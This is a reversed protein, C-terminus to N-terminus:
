NFTLLELVRDSMPVVRMKGTKTLFGDSNSVLILKRKLDVSGWELNLVEGLRMGTLVTFVFMRRFLADARSCLRWFEEESLFKPQREPIRMPSCKAFPNERLLDWRVACNFAAKLSRFEINVTTPSCCVARKAKYLDVDRATYFSLDRDGCVSVFTKFARGYIGVLTSERLNPGEIEEFEKVFESFFM